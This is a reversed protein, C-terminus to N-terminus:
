IRRLTAPCSQCNKKYKQFEPKILSVLNFVNEDNGLEVRNLLVLNLINENNGIEKGNIPVLNAYKEYNRFEEGNQQFCQCIKCM